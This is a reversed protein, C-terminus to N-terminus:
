AQMEDGVALWDGGRRRVVGQVLSFLRRFFQQDSGVRSDSHRLRVRKGGSGTCVALGGHSERRHEEVVAQDFVGLCRPSNPGTHVCVWAGRGIARAVGM